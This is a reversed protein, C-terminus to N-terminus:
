ATGDQQAQERQWRLRGSEIDGILETTWALEFNTRAIAYRLDLWYIEPVERDRLDAEVVKDAAASAALTLARKKLRAVADERAIDDLVGLGCPFEPYEEAVTGLIEKARDDLADRGAATMAYVTREPRRGERQTDVVEIFEQAQLRDVTHYLSGAKVKVRRDIQRERMLQAIEYPHMPKEHLLEMVALALPTLKHIAM